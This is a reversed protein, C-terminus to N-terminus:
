VAPCVRMTDSNQWRYNNCLLISVVQLTFFNTGAPQCSPHTLPSHIICYQVRKMCPKNFLTFWLFYRWLWFLSICICLFAYAPARYVKWFCWVEYACFGQPVFHSLLPDTFFQHSTLFNHVIARLVYASHANNCLQWTCLMSFIQRSVWCVIRVPYQPLDAM